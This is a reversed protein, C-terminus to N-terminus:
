APTDFRDILKQGNSVITYGTPDGCTNCLEYYIQQGNEERLFEGLVVKKIWRKKRLYRLVETITEGKDNRGLLSGDSTNFIGIINEKNKEM